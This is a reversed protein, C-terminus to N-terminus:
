QQDDEVQFESRQGRHGRNTGPKGGVMEPMLGAAEEENILKFILM